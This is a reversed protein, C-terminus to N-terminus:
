IRGFENKQVRNDLQTKPNLPYTGGDVVDGNELVAISIESPLANKVSTLKNEDFNFANEGVHISFGTSLQTTVVSKITSLDFPGMVWLVVEGTNSFTLTFQSKHIINM